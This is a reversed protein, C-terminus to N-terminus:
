ISALIFSLTLPPIIISAWFVVVDKLANYDEVPESKKAAKPQCEVLSFMFNSNTKSAETAYSNEKYLPQGM